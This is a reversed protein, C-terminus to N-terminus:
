RRMTTLGKYRYTENTNIETFYLLWFFFSYLFSLTIVETNWCIFLSFIMTIFAESYHGFMCKTKKFLMVVLFFLGLIGYQFLMGLYANHPSSLPQIEKNYNSIPVTGGGFGVLYSSSNNDMLKFMNEWRETRGSTIDTSYVAAENREEVVSELIPLLFVMFVAVAMIRYANSIKKARFILYLGVVIAVIMSSRTGSLITSFITILLIVCKMIQSKTLSLLIGCLIVVFVGTYTSGGVTTGVRYVGDILEIEQQGSAFYGLGFSFSVQQLVILALLSLTAIYIVKKIWKTYNIYKAFFYGGVFETGIAVHAFYNDSIFRLDFVVVFVVFMLFWIDTKVNKIGVARICLALFGLFVFPFLDYGLFNVNMREEMGSPVFAMLFAPLLLMYDLMNNTGSKNINQSGKHFM